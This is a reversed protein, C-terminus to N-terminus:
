DNESFKFFFFTYSYIKTDPHTQPLYHCNLNGSLMIDNEFVSDYCLVIM